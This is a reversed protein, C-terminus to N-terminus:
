SEYKMLIQVAAITMVSLLNAVAATSRVQIKSTSPKFRSQVGELGISFKKKNEVEASLHKFLLKFCAMVRWNM